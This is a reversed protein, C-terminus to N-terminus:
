EAAIEIVTLTRDLLVPSGNERLFQL